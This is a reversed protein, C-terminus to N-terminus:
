PAKVTLTRVGLRDSIVLIAFESPRFPSDTSVAAYAFAGRLDTYGDKHFKVDRGSADRAYVKVYAAPVARGSRDRVRLEGYESAVQVDLAGSLVNMSATVRGEGDTAEVLLNAGRLGEPLEVKMTDPVPAKLWNVSAEWAPRLFASAAKVDGKGFPDKSFTVEVDTPFARVTASAVNRRRVVITRTEGDVTEASLELSPASAVEDRGNAAAAPGRGAIEDAQAVVARFRDRWRPVPWDAYKLAIERGKEPELRSFAFYARLYDLQMKTEVDKPKVAEVMREAEEVRDQAVLYIAADVRDKASLENKTALYDLFERYRRRLTENPITAKGGLAHARANVLPWLEAYEFLDTEDPDIDVLSCHFSPGLEKALRSRMGRRMFLQRVRDRFDAIRRRGSLNTLWLGEHFVGRRDLAEFVRRAFADDKMRWGIKGLDVADSSLNATGLFAIVEDATGNQSIWRWSATDVKSPKEVVRCVSAEAVGVVKGDTVAVAPNHRGAAEASPFYFLVSMERMSYGALELPVLDSDRGGKLAVAGDPVQVLCELRVPKEAPNSFVTVLRYCRGAVFEDAVYKTGGDDAPLAEAFRQVVGIDRVGSDPREVRRESFVIAGKADKADFPLALAALAGIREFLGVGIEVINESLFDADKGEAVAAAYDRWFGNAGVRVSAEDAHRVRYHHTEVWERTREPPRYPQRVAKRKAADAELRTRSSLGRGAILQSAPRAGLARRNQLKEADRIVALQSSWGAEEQADDQDEVMGNRMARKKDLGLGGRASALSYVPRWPAQAEPAPPEEEAAMLARTADDPRVVSLALSIRSSRLAQDAPHAECEAALMKAVKEAVAPVRKALLCKELADLDQLAGPEAWESVDDGLLWRDLFRKHRKNRLNPAVVADFFDRDKFYLFLDLEHSAYEGYLRRREDDALSNWRALFEFAAFDDQPAFSRVLDFAAAVSDCKKARGEPEQAASEGRVVRGARELTAIGQAASEGRHRIDRRAPEATPALLRRADVGLSDVAVLAVDQFEVGEPLEFAVAGEADPRANLRVFAPSALFDYCPQAFASLGAAGGYAGGGRRVTSFREAPAVDEAKDWGEGARVNVESTQTESVSWPTLLLSPRELMNGPRHPLNRRDYIYRLKDGLDRESVYETKAPTWDVASAEVRALRGALFRALGPEHSQYRAAVLHVRADPAANALKARVTRGERSVQALCIRGPAGTDALVRHAGPISGNVVASADSKAVKLAVVRGEARLFLRYDGARLGKVRLLGDAYSLSQPFTATCVGERNFAALSARAALDDAHPWAGSLLGPVSLEFSEGEVATLESPLAALAEDRLSWTKAAPSKMALSVIDALAGLRVRGSSDTQFRRLISKTFALHSFELEVERGALPEGNRGRLEVSYGDSGRRLLPQIIRDSRAIGRALVRKVSSSVDVSKGESASKVKGSLSFAAVNMRKPVTFSYVGEAADSLKFDEVRRVSLTERVDSLTVTLVPKELLALSSEAGGVSLRAKVVATAENGAVLSEPPLFVDLKLDFSEARHDFERVAARGLAGVVAKKRGATERTAFPVVIEGREDSAYTTEGVRLQSPKLVEGKEDVAAFVHGCSAIREVVRLSGKRVIARSSLGAGSCEVVYVGPRALEPLDIRERHRVIPAVSSFDLLRETGPVCGDLDIDSKPEAGLRVAARYADLEYIALRLKPVNKVDIDLAVPKESPFVSPNSACWRLEVRERLKRFEDDGIKGADVKEVPVGALLDTEACLRALQEAPVLDKFESLDDGARRYAALYDYVIAGDSSGWDPMSSRLGLRGGKRLHDKLLEVLLGRDAFNGREREIALIGRLAEAKLAAQAEPLRRAFALLRDLAARRVDPDLADEDAGPALRKRYAAIFDRNELLPVRWQEKGYQEALADLEALTLAEYGKDREYAKRSGIRKRVAEFHGPTGPLAETWSDFYDSHTPTNVWGAYALFRFKDRFCTQVSFGANLFADFSVDKQDLVSPYTNPAAEVERAYAPPEIGLFSKLDWSLFEDTTRGANGGPNAEWALFMHRLQLRRWADDSLGTRRNSNLFKKAEDPRRANQFNLLSYFYWQGSGRKLESVLAARNTSFAYREAFELDSFKSFDDASCVAAALAVGWAPLLNKM